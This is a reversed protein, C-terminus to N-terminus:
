RDRRQEDSAAARCFWNINKPAPKGLYRDVAPRNDCTCTGDTLIFLEAGFLDASATEEFEIPLRRMAAYRICDPEAASAAIATPVIAVSLVASMM